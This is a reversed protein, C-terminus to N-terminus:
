NVIRKFKKEIEQKSMSFLTPRGHPCNYPNDLTMLKAILARAEDETMNTNGKVAAKCAMSAIKECIVGSIKRLGTEALEDVIEVFMDRASRGYLDLPIARLLIDPGKFSELEFGLAEFSTLNENVLNYEVPTLNIVVPPNIQQSCVSRNEYSKILAEYKVKEHAAHQDMFLLKDKYEIIWYTDFVQGIIRYDQMADYSLLKDEFLDQQAFIGQSVNERSELVRNTEFPEPASFVDEKMESRDDTNEGSDFEKTVHHSAIIFETNIPSEDRSYDDSDKTIIEHDIGSEGSIVDIAASKTVESLIAEPIMERVKLTAAVASSIFDAILENNSFRVEMKTPHVNVDVYLPDININLVLFPFKHQMLYQRYGEECANQIVKSKVFRGNVFYIEFNRNSRNLVPKGLYGNLSIEDRKENIPIIERSVDRGYIRYILEKLDGSGSTHFKVSGSNVFKVSIDPRSLAIHECVEAVYGAETIASKLFKRRVPTNFFLNRVIISTGNPIGIEEFDVEKAGEIMYRIGLLSDKTKTLLEVNSVAAISSLAEGRFGLSEVTDLDDATTIKSTAHRLFATRIDEPDIGCGNDTVRIFSIGGEKIEVTVADAGADIANELLEKVISAPREIVEGAAIKDITEESLLRINAM